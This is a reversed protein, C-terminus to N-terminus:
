ADKKKQKKTEGLDSSPESLGRWFSTGPHQKEEPRAQAQKEEFLHLFFEGREKLDGSKKKIKKCTQNIKKEIKLL